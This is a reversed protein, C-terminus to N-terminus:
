TIAPLVSQPSFPNLDLRVHVLEEESDTVKAIQELGSSSLWVWIHISDKEAVEQIQFNINNKM